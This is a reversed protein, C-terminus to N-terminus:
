SELGRSRIRTSSPDVTSNRPVFINLKHLRSWLAIGILWWSRWPFLGKQHKATACLVHSCVRDPEKRFGFCRMAKLHLFQWELVAWNNNASDLVVYQIGVPILNTPVHIVISTSLKDPCEVPERHWLIASAKEWSFAFAMIFEKDRPKTHTTRPYSIQSSALQHNMVPCNARYMSSRLHLDGKILRVSSSLIDVPFVFHHFSTVRAFVHDCATRLVVVGSRVLQLLQHCPM